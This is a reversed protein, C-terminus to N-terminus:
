LGQFKANVCRRICMVAQGHFRITNQERMIIGRRPCATNLQDDILLVGAFCRRLKVLRGIRATGFSPESPIIIKM